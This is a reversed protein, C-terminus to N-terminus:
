PPPTLASIVRAAGAPWVRQFHAVNLTVLQDVMALEAARASVGDYVIGGILARRSLDTVLGIYDSGSLTVFQEFRFVIDDLMHLAEVPKIAPKRPM